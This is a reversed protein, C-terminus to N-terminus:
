PVAPRPAPQEVPLGAARWMAFGGVVDTAQEFGLDQLRAAALSSCYGEACILILQTDRGGIRPDHHGSDPDVRWELVNLPLALAGPIEGQVTRQEGTRVDILVAGQALAAAAEQPGLRRLRSRAEDLLQQVTKGARM